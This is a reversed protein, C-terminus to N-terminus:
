FRLRLGAAVHFGGADVEVTGGDASRLDITARSFRTLWGVGVHESFYFAVDAGVNFGITSESQNSTTLGTYTATDYPYVQTFLVDTVLDQKVDFFTPGGFVALELAENVPVVWIVQVHVATEKRRLDGQTGSIQRDQDFFFPHPIRAAVSVDDARDFLSVGVGIALNRWVRVAGSMDFINGGDVGYGADFDGQEVFRTIVVNDSFNTSTAQFGWNVTVFGRATQQAAVTTASGLVVCSIAAIMLATQRITGFLKLSTM